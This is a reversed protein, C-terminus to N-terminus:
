LFSPYFFKFNLKSNKSVTSKKKTHGNLFFVNVLQKNRNLVERQNNKELGCLSILAFFSPTHDVEKFYFLIRECKLSNFCFVNKLKKM